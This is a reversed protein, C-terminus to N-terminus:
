MSGQAGEHRYMMELQFRLHAADEDEEIGDGDDDDEDTSSEDYIGEEPTRYQVCGGRAWHGTGPKAPCGCVYCFDMGCPCKIHNCAEALEIRKQCQLNPCDQYDRGRKLGAFAQERLEREAIPECRHRIKKERWQRRGPPFARRCRPCTYGQCMECRRCEQKGEWGGLFAGCPESAERLRRRQCYLRLREPVSWEKSKEDYQKLFLTSLVRRYRSDWPDLVTDGWRPPFNIESKVSDEFIHRLTQACVVDNNILFPPRDNHHELCLNCYWSNPTEM